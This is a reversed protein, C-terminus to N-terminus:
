FLAYLIPMVSSNGIFSIFIGFFILAAFFPILWWKKNKRVYEFLLKLIEYNQILKSKGKIKNKM